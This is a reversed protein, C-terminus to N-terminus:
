IDSLSEVGLLEEVEEIEYGKNGMIKELDIEVENEKAFKVTRFITNQDEQTLADVEELVDDWNDYEFVQYTATAVSYDVHNNVYNQPLVGDYDEAFSRVDDLFDERSKIGEEKLSM